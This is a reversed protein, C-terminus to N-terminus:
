LAILCGLKLPYQQLEIFEECLSGLLFKKDTGPIHIVPRGGSDPIFGTGEILLITGHRCKASMHTQQAIFAINGSSRFFANGIIGGSDKRMFLHPSNEMSAVVQDHLLMVGLADHNNHGRQYPYKVTGSYSDALGKGDQIFIHIKVSSDNYQIIVFVTALSQSRNIFWQFLNELLVDTVPVPYGCRADSIRAGMQKNGRCSFRTGAPSNQGVEITNQFFTSDRSATVLPPRHNVFDTM